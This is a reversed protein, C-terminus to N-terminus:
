ISSRRPIRHRSPFDVRAEAIERQLTMANTINGNHAVAFGGGHFEAFMPQVNGFSRAERQRSVTHSRDGTSGKLRGIPAPGQLFNDGVFGSIVSWMSGTARRFSVIVQRKRAVRHQLAHLGLATLAAPSRGASTGFVGFVGCNMTSNTTM